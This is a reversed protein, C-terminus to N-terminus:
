AVSRAPFPHVSGGEGPSGLVIKAGREILRPVKETLRDVVMQRPCLIAKDAERWGCCDLWSVAFAEDQAKVVIERVASPGSFRTALTSPPGELWDLHKQDKLWVHMGAAGCEAKPERGERAYRACAAPLQDRHTRSLRLWFGLAKPKSSRGKVHPYAKWAAEFLDPYPKEDPEPETAPVAVFLDNSREEKHNHNQNHRSKSEAASAIASPPAKNQLAKQEAGRKGAESRKGSTNEYKAMEEALRKHTIKARSQRFFPMIVPKVAAWEEPSCRAMKALNADAAPVAGGARWMAMLLLLYAGHELAGLHHTDGLYDAVYLKMYPPASM